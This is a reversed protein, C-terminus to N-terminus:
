WRTLDPAPEVNWRRLARYEHEFGIVNITAVGLAFRAGDTPALGLCVATLVRMHHGHGFLLADGGAADCRAIVRRARVAVEEASEGGPVGGSWLTWGPRTRRIEATSLGEYEGYDWERLDDDIEADPFGALRATELARQLPSALVLAFRRGALAARLAVAHRRGEELLPLDTRGTHRGDRSWETAGHRVLWIEGAPATV